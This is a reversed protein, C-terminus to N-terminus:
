EVIKEFLLKGDEFTLTIQDEEVFKKMLIQKALEKEVHDKIARKMPRAGYIPDFGLDIIHKLAKEDCKITFNHNEGVRKFLKDLQIEAIKSIAEKQLSNFVVIDNLRNIFEPRFRSQLQEMIGKTLEEKNIERGEEISRQTEELIYQSGINSTLIIITNSFDIVTGLGDTMRGDDLVQLLTDALSTHAKEFEDFLIVSNPNNKVQETLEGGAEYGVYGPPAGFLRSAAHKEAFESMDFRIINKESGYMVDALAKTIETKGVGTPGLFLFSGVPKGPESIGVKSIRVVDSIASAAEDQGIVRRSLIEELKLLKESEGEMIKNLPINTLDSIAEAILDQDIKVKLLTFLSDDKENKMKSDLDTIEKEINAKAEYTLKSMEEYNQAKSAEAIKDDILAMEKLLEQKKSVIAKEAKYTEIMTEFEQERNRKEEKLEEIAIPVHKDDSGTMSSIQIELQEINRKIIDLKAPITSNEVKLRASAIDILDIAKDPLCRNKMYRESLKVASIIAADSIYVTHYREYASKIGRIITITEDATAENVVIKMFRREMAKDKEIYERYEDFTTTGVCTLMGRSLHTKLIGGVGSSGETKGSNLMTHIEDIFLIANSNKEVFKLVKKMRKEIDGRYKAGANLANLDLMYVEKELLNDPVDNDLIRMVLGEIIATKGVGPKGVLVPNKKNKKSIVNIIERIENTRGIVPSLEDEEIEKKIKENMNILFDSLKFKGDEEEESDADSSEKDFKEIKYDVSRNYFDDVKLGAQQFIKKYQKHNAAESLFHSVTIIEQQEKITKLIESVNSSLDLLNNSKGRYEEYSVENDDNYVSGNEFLDEFEQSLINLDAGYKELDDHAYQFIKDSLIYTLIAPVDITTLKKEASMREAETLALKIHMTYINDKEM